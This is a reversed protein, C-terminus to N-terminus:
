LMATISTVSFFLGWWIEGVEWGVGGLEMVCWYSVLLYWLVRGIPGNEYYGGWSKRSAYSVWLIHGIPGFVYPKVEVEEVKPIPSRM